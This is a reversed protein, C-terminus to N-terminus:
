PTGCGFLCQNTVSRRLTALRSFRGPSDEGGLWASVPGADGRRETQSDVANDTVLTGCVAGCHLIVM